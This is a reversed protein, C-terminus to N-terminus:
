NYFTTSVHGNPNFDILEDYKHGDLEISTVKSSMNGTFQQNM